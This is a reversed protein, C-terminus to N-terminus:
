LLNQQVIVELALEVIPGTKCDLAALLPYTQVPPRAALPLLSYIRHCGSKRTDGPYERVSRLLLILAKTFRTHDYASVITCAFPVFM